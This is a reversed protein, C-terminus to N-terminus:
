LQVSPMAAAWASVSTAWIQRSLKDTSDIFKYIGEFAAEIQKGGCKIGNHIIAGGAGPMDPTIVAIGRENLPAALM